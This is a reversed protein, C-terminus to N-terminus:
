RGGLAAVVTAIAQETDHAVIEGPLRVVRYGLEGLRRDRRMDAQARGAHYGGDVEVALRPSPACFDVIQAGIIVQRRSRWGDDRQGLHTAAERM